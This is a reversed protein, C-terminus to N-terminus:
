AGLIGILGFLSLVTSLMAILASGAAEEDDFRAM